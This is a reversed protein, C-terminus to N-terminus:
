APVQEKWDAIWRAATAPSTNFKAALKRGSMKPNARWVAEAEARSQTVQAQSTTAPSRRRNRPPNNQTMTATPPPPPPPSALTAVGPSLVPAPLAQTPSQPRKGPRRHGALRGLSMPRHLPGLRVPRSEQTVTPAAKRPTAAVVPTTVNWVNLDAVADASTGTVSRYLADLNTRVADIMDLDTAFGMRITAKQVVRHYRRRAMDRRRWSTATHMRYALTAIRAATRTRAAEEDDQDVDDLLGLTAMARRRLRAVPGEHNTLDRREGRILLEFLVAAVMPAAFRLASERGGTDSSSMLGSAIAFLWVLWGQIGMQGYALRNIRAAWACAVTALDFLLFMPLILYWKGHLRPLDNFFTWMGWGSGFMAAGVAALTFGTLIRRQRALAETMGAHTANMKM